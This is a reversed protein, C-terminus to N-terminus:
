TQMASFIMAGDAEWWAKIDEFAGVFFTGVADLALQIKLKMEEFKRRIKATTEWITEITEDSLGISRLLDIGGETDGKFFATVGSIADIVKDKFEMASEWAGMFKDKLGDIFNRFTESKNYAIVFAAGLAVIAAITLTIPSTLAGFLPALWKLLGGAKATSALVPAMVTVVNAAVSVFTGLALSVPGMAVVILGLWKQWGAIPLNDWMDGLVRKINDAFTVVSRKLNSFLMEIDAGEQGFGAALDQFSAKMMGFSGSVTEEAEKMTTGTVGMETQVEHIAEVMTHFPVDKVTEATVEMSDGLVGSENILRAM